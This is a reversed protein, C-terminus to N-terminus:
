PCPIEKRVFSGHFRLAAQRYAEDAEEPTKFYGIHVPHKDVRIKVRYRPKGKGKVVVTVGKMGTTSDKRVRTNRVNEMRTAARLNSRRNNLGNGDIHDVEKGVIDLGMRDAILRHLWCTRGDGKQRSVAYSTGRGVDMTHWNRCAVEADALDITASRGRTLLITVVDGAIIPPRLIRRNRTRTM